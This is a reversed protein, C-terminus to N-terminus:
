DDDDGDDDDDELGYVGHWLDVYGSYIWNSIICYTGVFTGGALVMLGRHVADSSATAPHQLISAVIDSPEFGHKAPSRFLSLRGACRRFM